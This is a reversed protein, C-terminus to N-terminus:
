KHRPSPTKFGSHARKPSPSPIGDHGQHLYSSDAHLFEEVSSGQGDSPPLSRAGLARGSDLGIWTTSFSRLFDTNDENDSAETEGDTSVASVSKNEDDKPTSLRHAEQCDKLSPISQVLGQRQGQATFMVSSLVAGQNVGAVLKLSGCLLM